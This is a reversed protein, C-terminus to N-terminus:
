IRFWRLNKKSDIRIGKRVLVKNGQNYVKQNKCVNEKLISLLYLVGERESKESIFAVGFSNFPGSKM